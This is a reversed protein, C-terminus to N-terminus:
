SEFRKLRLTSFALVIKGPATSYYVLFDAISPIKFAPARGDIVDEGMTMYIGSDLKKGRCAKASM